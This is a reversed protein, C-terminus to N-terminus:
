CLIKEIIENRRIRKYYDEKKLRWKDDINDWFNFGDRTKYWPFIINMYGIDDLTSLLEKIGLKNKNCEIMFNDYVNNDKLFQIFCEMKAEKDIM